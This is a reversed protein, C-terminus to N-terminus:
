ISSATDVSPREPSATHGLHGGRERLTGTSLERTLGARSAVWIPLSFLEWEATKGGGQGALIFVIHIKIGAPLLADKVM